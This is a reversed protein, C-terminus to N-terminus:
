KNDGVDQPDITPLDVFDDKDGEQVSKSSLDGSGESAKKLELIQRQLENCKEAFKAKEEKYQQIESALAEAYTVKSKALADEAVKRRQIASMLEIQAKYLECDSIAKGLRDIEACRNSKKDQGIASFKICAVISIVFVILLLMGLGPYAEFACTLAYIGLIILLLGLCGVSAACDNSLVASTEAKKVTPDKDM